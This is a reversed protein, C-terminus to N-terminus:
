KAEKRKNEINDLSTSCANAKVWEIKIEKGEGRPRKEKGCL